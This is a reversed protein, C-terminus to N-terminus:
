PSERPWPRVEGWGWTPMPEPVGTDAGPRSFAVALRTGWEVYAAFASRFEPDDPLGVDDAADHLLDAWRRRQQETLSRGAHHGVMAGHGGRTTSYVAPGGFVEGIWAAVHKPHDRSMGDFVPGIVEDGVVKGYFTEFLRELAQSGGAWEYLSPMVPVPTYHRMEAIADVYDKIEAFFRRFEPSQRFGDVHDSTSTWVIRLVYSSPEEECRSLEITRCYPSARLSTAARAYAQEFEDARQQPITYRVYEVTM